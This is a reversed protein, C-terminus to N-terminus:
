PGPSDVVGAARLREFEERGHGLEALIEETHEGLLPPAQAPRTGAGLSFPPLVLEVEGATPHPLRVTVAKGAREAERIADLVGRVKGAPVGAQNLDVLWEEATRTALRLELIAVLETRHEVRDPNTRFRPDHAVEPLGLVECLRAFLRDNAAAVALPADAASFTQYPVITPHANGHRAPERDTVLATSAVNVLSAVATDLLSIEIRDGDGTAARGILAGLIANVAASGALVDVLAAGVKTPEGEAEGTIAMLGSEAQVVLDYGPRGAPRRSSGFSNISCYVLARNRARLQEYGLGLREATGTRFNEVVVDARAALEGVIERGVPTALDIALSRKGRNVSLYYASEGGTFPPGWTRTEDGLGPREVKIVEAGLDALIMTCYPGALVRTLDLVRISELPAV